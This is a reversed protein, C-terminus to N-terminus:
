LTGNFNHNGLMPCENTNEAVEGDADSKRPKRPKKAKSVGNSKAKSPRRKSQIPLTKRARKRPKDDHDDDEEDEEEEEDDEDIEEVSDDEPDLRM